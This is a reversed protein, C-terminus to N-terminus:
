PDPCSPPEEELYIHRHVRDRVVMRWMMGQDDHEHHPWTKKMLIAYADLDDMM